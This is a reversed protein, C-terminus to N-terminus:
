QKFLVEHIWGENTLVLMDRSKIEADTQEPINRYAARLPESKVWGAADELKYRYNVQSVTMGVMDSPETFNDIESVVYHGTCFERREKGEKTKTLSYKKGEDTPQYETAPVMKSKGFYQKQEIETDRKSLLGADALADAMGKDSMFFERNALVFPFEKEPIQVCLGHQSDLYAQIAKKFNGKNADKPNGCAAFLLALSGIALVKLNLYRM